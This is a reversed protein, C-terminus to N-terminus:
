ARRRAAMRRLSDRRAQQIGDWIQAASRPSSCAPSSTSPAGTWPRSSPDVRKHADRVYPCRPHFHCGSPRNILSPPRGSIPVLEEDRPSDLRPISELLGWTYPHQPPTSSTRPAAASSSAAPTCSASTTPSRPSSARPRPHHHHHGHGAAAASGPAAGPDPGPRHCGARHHARRRHAAQARQVAGHRDDGAPAHRRLVRAPVPRRPAQSRPNRRPRATRRRADRAASKRSARSAGADGRGAAVGVKYFPHLASLPDQFIMAMDNGRVARLKDDALTVMDQGDFM